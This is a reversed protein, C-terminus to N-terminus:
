DFGGVGAGVVNKRVARVRGVVGEQKGEGGVFYAEAREARKVEGELGKVVKGREELSSRFRERLDWSALRLVTRTEASIRAAHYGQFTLVEEEEKVAEEEDGKRASRIRNNRVLKQEGYMRVVDRRVRRGVTRPISQPLEWVVWAGLGVGGVALVPLVWRRSDENGLVDGIKLVTSLLSRVGLAQSGLMTLSLSAAGGLSLLSLATSSEDEEDLESTENEKDKSSSASKALAALHHYLDFVDGLGGKEETLERNSALPAGLDTVLGIGLGHVGGAVVVSSSTTRRTTRISNRSPQRSASAAPTSHRGKKGSKASSASPASASRFMAEPMFVRKSRPVDAPLHSEALSKVEDVGIVL